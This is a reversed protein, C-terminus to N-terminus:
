CVNTQKHDLKRKPSATRLFAQHDHLFHIGECDLDYQKKRIKYKMLPATGFEEFELEKSRMMSSKTPFHHNPHFTKQEESLKMESMEKNEKKLIM